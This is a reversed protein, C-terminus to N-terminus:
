CGIIWVYMMLAWSGSTVQWPAFVPMTEVQALFSNLPGPDARKKRNEMQTAKLEM